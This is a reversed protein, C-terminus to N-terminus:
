AMIKRAITRDTVRPTMKEHSLRPDIPLAIDLSLIDTVIM